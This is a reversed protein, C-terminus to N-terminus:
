PPPQALTVDESDLLHRTLAHAAFPLRCSRTGVASSAQISVALSLYTARLTQIRLVCVRM